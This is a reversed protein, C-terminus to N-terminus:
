SGSEFLAPFKEMADSLVMLRTWIKSNERTWEMRGLTGPPAIGVLEDMLGHRVVKGEVKKDEGECKMKLKTLDNLSWNTVGSRAVSFDRAVLSKPTPQLVDFTGTYKSGNAWIIRDPYLFRTKFNFENLDNPNDSLSKTKADSNYDIQVGGRPVQDEKILVVSDLKAASPIFAACFQQVKKRILSRGTDTQTKTFQLAVKAIWEGAKAPDNLPEPDAFLALLEEKASWEVARRIAEKADTLVRTPLNLRADDAQTLEIKLLRVQEGIARPAGLAKKVDPSDAETPLPLPLNLAKNYPEKAANELAKIVEVRCQVKWSAAKTLDSFRSDKTYNDLFRQFGAVVATAAEPSDIGTLSHVFWDDIAKAAKALKEKSSQWEEYNSKLAGEYKPSSVESLFKELDTLNASSEAIAKILSKFDEDSVSDGPGPQRFQLTVSEVTRIDEVWKETKAKAAAIQDKGPLGRDSPPESVILNVNTLGWVQWAGYAFFPIAMLLLIVGSKLGSM